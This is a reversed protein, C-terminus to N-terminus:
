EDVEWEEDDVEELDMDELDEEDLEEEYLDIEDEELLEIDEESPILDEEEIEEEYEDEELEEESAFFDEELPEEDLDEEYEEEDWEAAIDAYIDEEEEKAPLMEKKKKRRSKKKGQKEMKKKDEASFVTGCKMCYEDSLKVDTSCYPCTPIFFVSEYHADVLPQGQEGIVEFERRGVLFYVAFAGIIIGVLLAILLFPLWEQFWDWMSGKGKDGDGDAGDSSSSEVTLLMYDSDVINTGDSVVVWLRHVGSRELTINLVEGSGISNSEPYNELDSYWTFSLDEGEPDFSSSADLVISDGKSITETAPYMTFSVSPPLDIITVQVEISIPTSVVWGNGSRDMMRFKILNFPGEDFVVDVLASYAGGGRDELEDVTKWPSFGGVGYQIWGSITSISYEVKNFDVGAGDDLIFATMEVQKEPLVASGNPSFGTFTPFDEDIYISVIDSQVANGAVDTVMWQAFGWGRYSPLVQISPSSSAGIGTLGLSKFDLDYFEDRSGIRYMISDLRIGSTDDEMYCGITFPNPGVTLEERGLLDITPTGTDMNYSYPLSISTQGALDDIKWQIYHGYGDSEPVTVNLRVHDDLQTIERVSMWDSLLRVDSRYLRYMASATDIGSGTDQVMISFVNTDKNVWANEDPHNDSFRPGDVDIQLSRNEM